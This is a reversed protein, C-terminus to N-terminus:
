LCMPSCINSASCRCNWCNFHGGCGTSFSCSRLELVDGPRYNMLADNKCSLHQSHRKLCLTNGFSGIVLPLPWLKIHLDPLISSCVMLLM